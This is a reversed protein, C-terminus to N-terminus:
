KFNRELWQYYHSHIGSSTISISFYALNTNFTVESRKFLLYWSFQKQTDLKLKEIRSQRHLVSLVTHDHNVQDYRAQWSRWHVTRAQFIRGRRECKLENAKLLIRTGTRRWRVPVFIPAINAISLLDLLFHFRTSTYITNVIKETKFREDNTTSDSICHGM